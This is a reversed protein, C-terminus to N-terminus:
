SKRERWRPTRRAMMRGLMPPKLLPLATPPLKLLDAILSSKAGEEVAPTFSKRYITKRGETM